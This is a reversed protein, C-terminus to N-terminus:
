PRALAASGHAAEELAKTRLGPTAIIAVIHPKRLASQAHCCIGM